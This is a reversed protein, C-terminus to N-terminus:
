KLQIILIILYKKICVRVFTFLARIQLQLNINKRQIMTTTPQNM